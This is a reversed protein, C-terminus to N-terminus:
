GNPQTVTPTSNAPASNDPPAANPPIPLVPQATVTASIQGGALQKGGYDIVARMQYDGPALPKDWVPSLPQSGGPLVQVQVPVLKATDVVAGGADLAQVTGSLRVNVPGTNQFTLGLESAPSLAMATLHGQPPLPVAPVIFLKCGFRTSIAVQINNDGAIPVPRSQFFVLAHKETALDPPTTISFRVKVTQKPALNFEAPNLAIWTACSDPQTGPDGLVVQGSADKTWDSTYASIHLETEGTNYLEFNNTIRAGPRPVKLLAEMPGVTFDAWSPLAFLAILCPLLWAATRGRPFCSTPIFM